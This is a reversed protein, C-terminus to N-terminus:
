FDGSRQGSGSVPSTEMSTQTRITPYIGTFASRSTSFVIVYNEAYENPVQSFCLKPYKHQNKAVWKDTFKPARSVVQGAEAVAFSVNKDCTAQTPINDQGLALAAAFFLLLTVRM